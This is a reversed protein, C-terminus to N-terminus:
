IVRGGRVTGEMACGRRWVGREKEQFLIGWQTGFCGPV